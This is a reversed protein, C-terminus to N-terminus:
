ILFYHDQTTIHVFIIAEKVPVCLDILMKELNIWLLCFIKLLKKQIYVEYLVPPGNKM